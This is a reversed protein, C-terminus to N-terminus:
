MVDGCMRGGRRAGRRVKLPPQTCHCHLMVDCKKCFMSSGDEGAEECRQGGGRGDWRTLLASPTM